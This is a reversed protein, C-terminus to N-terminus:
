FGGGMNAAVNLQSLNSDFGPQLYPPEAGRVIPTDMEVVASKDWLPPRADSSKIAIRRDNWSPIANEGDDPALSGQPDKVQVGVAELAKLMTGEPLAGFISSLMEKDRLTGGQPVRGPIMLEEMM